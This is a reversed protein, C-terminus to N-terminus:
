GKSLFKGKRTHVGYVIEQALSCCFEVFRVLQAVPLTSRQLIFTSLVQLLEHLTLYQQVLNLLIDHNTLSSCILYKGFQGFASAFLQDALCHSIVVNQLLKLAHNYNRILLFNNCCVM